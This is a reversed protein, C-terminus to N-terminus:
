QDPSVKRWIYCKRKNENYGEICVAKGDEVLKNLLAKAKHESFGYKEKVMAITWDGPQVHSPAIEALMEELTQNDIDVM